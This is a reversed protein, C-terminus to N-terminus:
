QGAAVSVVVFVVGAAGCTLSWQVRRHKAWAISSMVVLQRTLSPLPDTQRLTAELEGPDWLRLHGFYLFADRAVPRQGGQGMGLSPSVAAVAFGAGLALLAAGIVLFAVAAVGGSPNLGRQTSVLVAVVALGTSQLTLAFAAKSDAKGTWEVLAGHVRWATDLPDATM